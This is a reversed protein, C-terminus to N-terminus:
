TSLMSGDFRLDSEPHVQGACAGSQRFFDWCTLPTLLAFPTLRHSAPRGAKGARLQADALRPYAAVPLCLGAGWAMAGAFPQLVLLLGFLVLAALAVFFTKTYFERSERRRTVLHPRRLPVKYLFPAAKAARNQSHKADRM